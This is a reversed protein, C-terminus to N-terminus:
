ARAGRARRLRPMLSAKRVACPRLTSVPRGAPASRYRATATTLADPRAPPASRRRCSWAAARAPPAAARPRRWGHRRRPATTATAARGRAANQRDAAPGCRASAAAPARYRPARGSDAHRSRGPACTASLSGLRHQPRHPRGVHHFKGIAADGFQGAALAAAHRQRAHERHFRRDDQGVLRGGREIRAVLEVDHLGQAGGGVLAHQHDHHRM